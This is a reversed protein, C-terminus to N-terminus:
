VMYSQAEREKMCNYEDLAEILCYEGMRETFL